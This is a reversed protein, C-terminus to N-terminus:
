RRSLLHDRSERVAQEGTMLGSSVAGYLDFSAIGAFGADDLARVFPGLDHLRGCPLDDDGGGPGADGLHCHLLLEGLRGVVEAPDEGVAFAHGTDLLVGLGPVQACLTLAAAADPVVTDPKYELALRVDGAAAVCRVLAATVDAGVPDAGPWLGLVGIGLDRCAQACVEVQELLRDLEGSLAGAPWRQAPLSLLVGLVPVPGDALAALRSPALEVAADYVGLELGALGLDATQQSTQADTLGDPWSNWDADALQWARM